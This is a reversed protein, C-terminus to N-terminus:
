NTKYKFSKETLSNEQLNFWVRKKAIYCLNESVTNDPPDLPVTPLFPNMSVLSGVLIKSLIIEM